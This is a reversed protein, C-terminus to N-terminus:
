TPLSTILFFNLAGFGAGTFILGTALKELPSDFPDLIPFAPLRSPGSILNVTSAYNVDEMWTIEFVHDYTPGNGRDFLTVHSVSAFHSFIAELILKIKMFVNLARLTFQAM